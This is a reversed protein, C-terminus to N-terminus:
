TLSAVHGSHSGIFTRGPELLLQALDVLGTLGGPLAPFPIWGVPPVRLAAVSDLLVVPEGPGVGLRHRRLGLHRELLRGGDDVM